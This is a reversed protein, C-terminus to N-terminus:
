APRSQTLLVEPAAAPHLIAVVKRRAHEGQRLVVQRLPVAFAQALFAILRTNAQGDVAAGAVKIKLADGHLGSVETRRANPQVHLTLVFSEGDGDLRYWPAAM